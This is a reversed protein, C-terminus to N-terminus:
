TINKWNIGNKIHSITQRGVDYIKAIDKQKEGNRLREKIELVSERDLKTTSRNQSNVELTVFRCNSPEYNGDNNIRDIQLGREHGNTKAWRFFVEFNNLWVKCITIGRGGYLRFDKNKKNLCRKKMGRWVTYLGNTKIDIERNSNESGEIHCIKCDNRHGDKSSKRFYFDELSKVQKCKNCEKTM